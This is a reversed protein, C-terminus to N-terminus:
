ISIRQEEVMESNELFKLLDNVTIHKGLMDSFFFFLIELQDDAPNEKVFDILREKETHYLFNWTISISDTLCTVDHFWGSPFLIIEGPKLTLHYNPSANKFNPFRSHDPKKVDVFDQGSMLYEAQSPDYLIVEKEGFLQCLIANSGFPDRHLRTRAGKASIFLGKYPYRSTTIDKETNTDGFPVVLSSKPLFTPHTWADRLQEFATDSWCFDANKLKTYWRIYETCEKDPRSFNNTLYDNLSTVDQLDFLNNYVQTEFSGLEKKLSDPTFRTLDWDRMGDLVIVPKNSALYSDIFDTESLNEVKDITM